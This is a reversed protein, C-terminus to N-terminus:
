VVSNVQLYDDLDALYTRKVDEDAWSGLFGNRVLSAIATASLDLDRQVALLLDAVYRGGMLGPDDSNVSVQLGLELMQGIARTVAAAYYDERTDPLRWDTTPCATFSIQRTRCLSVLGDDGVVSYGHDIRQVGLDEVCARLHNLSDPVELDCHSTLQLGEDAALAFIEKFKAPFGPVEYSDLGVGAVSDRHALAVEFAAEVSALDAERQLAMILKSRM